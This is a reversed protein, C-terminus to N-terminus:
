NHPTSKLRLAATVAYAIAEGATKPSFKGPLGSGNIYSIGAHQAWNTEPPRTRTALELYVASRRLKMFDSEDFLQAPVTNIVFDAGAAATGALEAPLACFGDLQAKQRQIPSRAIITVRCRFERLLRALYRAIRGYGTIVACSDFLATDSGGILLSVAGEATLLANKLTLEEGSFYDCLRLRNAACLESLRDSSGGSLVLAGPQAYEAIIELPLPEDSLPANITIGSHSFPLPLVIARYKGQPPPFNGGIGLACVEASQSILEAAYIIRKDGGIFLIDEM